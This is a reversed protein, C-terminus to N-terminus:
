EGHISMYLAQKKAAPRPRKRSRKPPPNNKGFCYERIQPGPSPFLARHSHLAPRELRKYFQWVHDHPHPRGGDKGHRGVYQLLDDLATIIQSSEGKIQNM